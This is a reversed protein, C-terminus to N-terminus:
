GICPALLWQTSWQLAVALAILASVWVGIRSLFQTRAATDKAAQEPLESKRLAHWALMWAVLTLALAIASAVHLAIDRQSRCAVPVLAYALSLNALFVLPSAVISAWQAM